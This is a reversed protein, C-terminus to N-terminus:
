WDDIGSFLLHSESGRLWKACWPLKQGSIYYWHLMLNKSKPTARHQLFWKEKPLEVEGPCKNRNIRKLRNVKLVAPLLPLYVSINKISLEKWCVGPSDDM